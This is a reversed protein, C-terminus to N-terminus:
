IARVVLKSYVFELQQITIVILHAVVVLRQLVFKRKKTIVRATLLEKVVDKLYAIGTATMAPACLKEMVVIKEQVLVMATINHAIYPALAVGWIHQPIGLAIAMPMYQKAIPHEKPNMVAFRNRAM